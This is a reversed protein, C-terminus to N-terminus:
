EKIPFKWSIAVTLTLIGAIVLLSIGVPIVYVSSLLMKVGVFILV